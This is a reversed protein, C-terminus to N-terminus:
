SDDKCRLYESQPLCSQGRGHTVYAQAALDILERERRALQAAVEAAGLNTIAHTPTHAHATM